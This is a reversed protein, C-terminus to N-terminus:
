TRQTTATTTDNNSNSSDGDDGDDSLRQQIDDVLQKTRLTNEYEPGYLELYGELAKGAVEKADDTRQMEYYTVGLSYKLLLTLSDIDKAVKEKQLLTQQLIGAAEEFQQLEYLDISVHTRARLTM